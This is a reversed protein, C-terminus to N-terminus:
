NFFFGWTSAYINLGTPPSVGFNNLEQTALKGDSTVYDTLYPGGTHFQHLM